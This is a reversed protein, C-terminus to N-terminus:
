DLQRREIAWLEDTRADCPSCRKERDTVGAVEFVEDGLFLGDHALDARGLRATGFVEEGYANRHETLASELVRQRRHDVDFPQFPDYRLSYGLGFFPRSDDQIRFSPDGHSGTPRFVIDAGLGALREPRHDVVCGLGDRPLHRQM